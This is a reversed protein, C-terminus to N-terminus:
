AALPATELPAARMAKRETYTSFATGDSNSSRLGIRGASAFTTDNASLMLVGNVYFRIDAGEVEMRWKEQTGSAPATRTRNALETFTGSVTKGIRLLSGGQNTGVQYFNTGGADVRALIWPAGTASSGYRVTDLEIAVNDDSWENYANGSGSTWILGNRTGDNKLVGGAAAAWTHGSTSVRGGIATGDTQGTFTDTFTWVRSVAGSASTATKTASATGNGVSNVARIAFTYSTTSAPMTLVRAGIGTGTLAIWTTGGDITYEIATIASGGNSPLATINLSIEKASVGTSVSWDSSNFQAPVTNAVGLVIATTTAEVPTSDDVARIYQSIKTSSDFPPYLWVDVQGSPTTSLTITLISGSVSISSVTYAGTSTGTPFVSVRGIPNGILEINESMTLTIVSGSISSSVVTPANWEGKLAKHAANALTINGIQTPHVSDNMASDRPEFWTGGAAAAIAKMVRRGRTVTDFTGDNYRTGMATFVKRVTGTFTNRPEIDALLSTLNAQYTAEPTGNLADTGGIYIWQAEWGGAEALMSRLNTQSIGTLLDSVMGGSRGYCVWACTVGHQAVQLRLLEAAGVGNYIAMGETDSPIQWGAAKTQADFGGGGTYHNRVSGYPTAAPVLEAITGGTVDVKSAMRGIQSQGVGLIVRGVGFRTTGNTWPGSASPALDLRYWGLRAPAALTFSNAGAVADGIKTASVVVANTDPDSLRAYVPTAGDSTVSVPVTGVGLGNAGGTTTTRQYVKLNTIQTLTLAIEAGSTATKNASAAGNGVANVARLAFTYATGAAAMALTRAGTGTGSLATWTTGGDISYQLATIASGGNSPLASVNLVVENASLGTSISWDSAGFQAPVTATTLPTASAATDSLRYVSYTTGNTLGSFATEGDIMKANTLSTGDATPIAIYKPM